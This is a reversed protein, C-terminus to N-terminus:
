DLWKGSKAKPNMSHTTELFDIGQMKLSRCRGEIEEVLRKFIKVGPYKQNMEEALRNKHKAISNQMNKLQNLFVGKKLGLDSELIEIQNKGIRSFDDRGGIKFSFNRTLSPYITTCLLDYFPAIEIGNGTLLFSINKSHSDHNGIILNFCIWQLYLQASALKRKAPIEKLIMLYNQKLTPGGKSEYKNDSVVGQAQCFDQQHLRHVHQDQDFYRDYREVLLLPHPGELISTKATPLGIKEALKMCYYENFVSDKIKSHQIPVKVIHTTAEGGGPLFLKDGEVKAAFKDQAGALSLYGEQAAFASAVSHKDTIADYVRQMEIPIKRHKSPATAQGPKSLIIAGACDSGYRALFDFTGGIKQESQITDLVAGEPLLNEFFSLTTKNGFEQTSLPMAFSLPFRELRALWDKEYQFSLVLEDSQRLRGVLHREYYVELEKM